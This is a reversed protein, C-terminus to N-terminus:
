NKCKNCYYKGRGEVRTKIITNGCNKCEKQGHVKIKNYYGGEIYWGYTFSHISTGCVIISDRLIM